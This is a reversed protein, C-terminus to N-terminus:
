FQTISPMLKLVALDFPHQDVLKLWLSGASLPSPRSVFAGHQDQKDWVDPASILHDCIEFTRTHIQLPPEYM